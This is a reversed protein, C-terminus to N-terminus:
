QKVGKILDDTEKVTDGYVPVMMLGVHQFFQKLTDAEYDGHFRICIEGFGESTRWESDKDARRVAIDMAYGGMQDGRFTLTSYRDSKNGSTPDSIDVRAELSYEHPAHCSFEPNKIKLPNGETM